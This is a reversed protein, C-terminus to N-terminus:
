EGEEKIIIKDNYGLATLRSEDMVKVRTGLGIKRRLTARVKDALESLAHRDMRSPAVGVHVALSEGLGHRVAVELRIDEVEPFSEELVAAVEGPRINIGRVVVLPDTRGTVPAMRALTRGCPCADTDLATIDSTRYRILPFCEATLTTVALEGRRGPGLVAGTEPDVVEFLFHDEALHLGKKHPCEFAMGPEVLEEVGYLGVATIGLGEEIMGRLSETLPEPGFLGARLFLGDGKKKVTQLIRLAFSCTTALVTARFDWMIRYQLEASVVSSPALTAALYEAAHNFTAAGPFLGHNYAVQVVDKRGVDLGKYARAMLETWTKADNRTYGIVLPRALAGSPMKLRVVSSLPVAFLGYPYNAFLDERTTFPLKEIDQLGAVDDPLIGAEDMMKRYFDVKSYVRNLTMQLRELQLLELDERKLAESGPDLISLHEAEERQGM